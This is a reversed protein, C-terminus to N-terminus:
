GIRKPFEKYIVYPAGNQMLAKVPDFCDRIEQTKITKYKKSIVLGIHPREIKGIDYIGKKVLMCEGIIYPREDLQHMINKWKPLRGVVLLFGSDVNTKDEKDKDSDKKKFPFDKIIAFPKIVAKQMKRLFEDRIHETMEKKTVRTMLRHDEKSSASIDMRSVRSEKKYIISIKGNEDVEAGDGEEGEEENDNDLDDLNIEDGLLDDFDDNNVGKKDEPSHLIFM